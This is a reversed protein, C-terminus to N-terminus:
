VGRENPCNETEPLAWRHFLWGAAAGATAGAAAGAIGLNWGGEWGVTTAVISPVLNVLYVPVLYLQTRLGQFPRGKALAGGLVFLFLFFGVTRAQDELFIARPKAPWASAWFYTTLAAGILGYFVMWASQPSVDPTAATAPPRGPADSEDKEKCWEQIAECLGSLLAVPGFLLMILMVGWQVPPPMCGFIQGELSEDVWQKEHTKMYWSSFIAM